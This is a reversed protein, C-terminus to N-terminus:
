LWFSIVIDAGRDSSYKLLAVTQSCSFFNVVQSSSTCNVVREPDRTHTQTNHPTHKQKQATHARTLIRTSLADEIFARFEM